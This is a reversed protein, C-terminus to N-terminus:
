RGRADGPPNFLTLDGDILHLPGHPAPRDEDPPLDVGAMHVPPEAREPAEAAPADRERSARQERFTSAYSEPSDAHALLDDRAQALMGRPRTKYTHGTETIVILEGLPGPKYVWRGFTKEQHHKKCLCVLNWEATPGGFEPRLRDFAIVHDVECDEARVSCGPHRCTGDRLRIRREMAASVFYKMAARPDDDAGPLPDVLDFRVGDDGDTLTKRVLWDYASYAGRILEVRTPLGAAVSAIVSIHLRTTVPPPAPTDSPAGPGAPRALGLRALVDVLHQMRSRGVADQTDAIAEIRARLEEADESRMTAWLSTMGNGAPRFSIRRSERAKSARREVEEPDLTEVARDVRDHLSAKSPQDGGDVQAMVSAVVEAEVSPLMEDSVEALRCALTIITAEDLTGRRAASDLRRLRTHLQVAAAVMRGAHWDTVCMATTVLARALREADMRAHEAPAPREHARDDETALDRARQEAGVLAYVVDLRTVAALNRARTLERATQELADKSLSSLPESVELASSPVMGAAVDNVFRAGAGPLASFPSM